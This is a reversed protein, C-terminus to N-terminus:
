VYESYYITYIDISAIYIFINCNAFCSLLSSSRWGRGCGNFFIWSSSCTVSSITSLERLRARSWKEAISHHIVERCDAPDGDDPRGQHPVHSKIIYSNHTNLILVYISLYMYRCRRFSLMLWCIKLHQRRCVM